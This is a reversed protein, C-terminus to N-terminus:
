PTPRDVCVGDVCEEGFADSLMCSNGCEGCHNPDTTLDACVKFIGDRKPVLCYTEGTPCSTCTPGEATGGQACFQGEPCANGCAGCHFDNDYTDVCARDCDTLGEPCFDYCGGNSCVQDSACAQSCSGCHDPDNTLDICATGCQDLDTRCEDEGLSQNKECATTVGLVVM